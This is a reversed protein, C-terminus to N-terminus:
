IMSPCITLISSLLLDLHVSSSHPSNESATNRCGGRHKHQCLGHISRPRHIGGTAILHLRYLARRVTDDRVIVPRFRVCLQLIMHVADQLPRIRILIRQLLQIIRKVTGIIINGICLQRDALQPAINSLHLSLQVSHHRIHGHGRRGRFEQRHSVVPLGRRYAIPLLHGDHKGDNVKAALVQRIQHYIRHNGIIHRDPGKFRGGRAISLGKGLNGSIGEAAVIFGAHKRSPLQGPLKRDPLINQGSIIRQGKFYPICLLAYATLLRHRQRDIYIRLSLGSRAMDASIGRRHLGFGSDDHGTEFRIRTLNISAIGEHHRNM